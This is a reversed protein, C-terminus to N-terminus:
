KVGIIMVRNFAKDEFEFRKIGDYLYESMHYRNMLDKISSMSNVHDDDIMDSAQLCVMTGSPINEFWENSRMHEVSSNIVVDPRPKYELLNIDATHAKFEWARYVWLNNVADAVIECSPDQDFSRVELVPIKSRTRILFNALAYWGALIWIRYGDEIPRHEELTRELREVLWLKSQMQAASFADFNM